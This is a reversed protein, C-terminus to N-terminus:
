LTEAVWAAVGGELLATNARAFPSQKRFARHFKAKHATGEDETLHRGSAPDSTNGVVVDDLM